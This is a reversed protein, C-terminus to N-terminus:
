YSFASVWAMDLTKQQPEFLKYGHETFVVVSDPDTDMMLLEQIRDKVQKETPEDLHIVLMNGILNIAIHEKM